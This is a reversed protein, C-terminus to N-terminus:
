ANGEKGAQLDVALRHLVNETMAQVFERCGDFRRLPCGTKRFPTCVPLFPCRKCAEEVPRQRKLEEYRQRDTIGEWINGFRNGESLHDCPQLQGGPEIVVGRDPDDAICSYMHFEALSLRETHMLGLDAAHDEISRVKRLLEPATGRAYEQHLVAFRLQINGADPFERHIEDVFETLGDLNGGDFNCRLEISVGQENLLHIGRLATDFNHRGPDIYRKRAAYTNRDGDLSVVAKTLKWLEVALRVTEPELLSANTTIHSTFCIGKKELERCIQDIHSVAVLPEGGFWWLRIPGSRRTRDIFETVASATEETMTVPVFGKEFCYTCRANCATTPFIEYGSYGDVPKQLIRMVQLASLYEACEDGGSGVICRNIALEELDNARVYEAGAGGTKMRSVAAYEAETLLYTQGTLNNRLLCIDGEEYLICFSSLCFADERDWTPKRIVSVVKDNGRHILEM